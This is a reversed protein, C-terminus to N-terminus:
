ANIFEYSFPSDFSSDLGPLHSSPGPKSPSSKDEGEQRINEAEQDGHPSCGEEM